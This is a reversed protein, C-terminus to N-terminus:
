PNWTKTEELTVTLEKFALVVKQIDAYRGTGLETVHGCYGMVLCKTITQSVVM